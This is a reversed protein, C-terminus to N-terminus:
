FALFGLADELEQLGEPTVAVDPVEYEVGSSVHLYCQANGNSSGKSRLVGRRDLFLALVQKLLDVDGEEEKARDYLSLFLEEGSKLAEGKKLREEDGRAPVVREWKGVVGSPLQFGEVCDKKVDIRCFGVAEKRLFCVLTDGEKLMEGCVACAKGLRDVHYSPM